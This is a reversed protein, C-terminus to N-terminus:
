QSAEPDFDGIAIPPECRLEYSFAGLLTGRPLDHCQLCFKSVRLSGLMEIRNPGAATDFDNGEKLKLLATEEFKSLPRTPTNALDEMRPLNTSDYVRPTEFKLLSVLEMRVVKWRKTQAAGAPRKGSSAARQPPPRDVPTPPMAAVAHPKFHAVHDVDVVYGITRPNAYGAAARDHVLSVETLTPLRWLALLGEAAVPGDTLPIAGLWSEGESLPGAVALPIPVSPTLFLDYAPHTSTGPYGMRSMGFKQSKAFREINEDHFM